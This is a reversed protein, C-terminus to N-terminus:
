GEPVMQPSTGPGQGPRDTRVYQRCPLVQHTRWGEGMAVDFFFLRVDGADRERFAAPLRDVFEFRRFAADRGRHRRQSIASDMGAATM